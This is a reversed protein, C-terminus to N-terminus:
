EKKGDDNEKESSGLVTDLVLSVCKLLARLVALTLSNM